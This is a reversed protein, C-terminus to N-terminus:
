SRRRPARPRSRPQLRKGNRALGMPTATWPADSVSHFANRCAYVGDGGWWIGAWNPSDCDPCKVQRAM